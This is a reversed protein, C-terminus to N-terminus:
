RAPVSPGPPHGAPVAAVGESLTKWRQATGPGPLWAMTMSGFTSSTNKEVENNRFDGLWGAGAEVPRLRGEGDVRLALAEELFAM